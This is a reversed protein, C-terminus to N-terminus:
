VEQKAVVHLPEWEIDKLAGFDMEGVEEAALHKAADENEADIPVSVYGDVRVTVIYKM